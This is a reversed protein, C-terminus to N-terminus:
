LMSLTFLTMFLSMKELPKTLYYVKNFPNVIGITELAKTLNTMMEKLKKQATAAHAMKDAESMIPEGGELEPETYLQTANVRIEQINNIVSSNLTTLCSEYQSCEVKAMFHVQKTIM